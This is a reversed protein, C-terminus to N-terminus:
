PLFNRRLNKRQACEAELQSRLQILEREETEQLNGLESCLRQNDALAV